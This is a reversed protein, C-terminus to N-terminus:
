PYRAEVQGQNVGNTINTFGLDQLIIKSANSRSGSRCYVIIPTDRPLKIIQTAGALMESPPINLAGIVHGEAYEEPERVDIITYKMLQNYCLFKRPVEKQM